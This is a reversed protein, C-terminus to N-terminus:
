SYTWGSRNSADKKKAATKAEVQKVSTKIVDLFTGKVALKEDYKKPREKKPKDAM